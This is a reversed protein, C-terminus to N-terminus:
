SAVHLQLSCEQERVLQALRDKDNQLASRSRRLKPVLTTLDQGQLLCGL